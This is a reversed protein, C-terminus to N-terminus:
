VKTWSIVSNWCWWRLPPVLRLIFSDARSLMGFARGYREHEDIIRKWYRVESPNLREVFYMWMFVSLTMLQFERHETHGVIDAIGRIDARVLPHETPSRVGAALRRYVRIAPNYELPEIFSAMGGPKLLRQVERVASDVDVHHLVGNGYVFDFSASPLGTQEAPACVTTLRSEVGESRALRMTCECMESSVDLGTVTAGHLAFYIGAEGAGCGLDLVNKGELNGFLHRVYAPEPSTPGEFVARPDHGEEDMTRAITDHFRREEAIPDTESHPTTLALDGITNGANCVAGLQHPVSTMICHCRKPPGSPQIPALPLNSTLDHSSTM